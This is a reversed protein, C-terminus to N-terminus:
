CIAVRLNQGAATTEESVIVNWSVNLLTGGRQEGESGPAAAGSSFSRLQWCRVAVVKSEKALNM